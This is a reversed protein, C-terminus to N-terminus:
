KSLEFRCCPCRKKKNLWTTICLDHFVHSCPLCAEESGVALEELCISCDKGSGEVVTKGVKEALEEATLAAGVDEEEEMHDNGFRPLDCVFVEIDVPLRLVQSGKDRSAEALRVAADSIEEVVSPKLPVNMSNLMDIVHRNGDSVLDELPFQHIVRSYFRGSEMFAGGQAGANRDLEVSIFKARVEIEFVPAPLSEDLPVEMDTDWFHSYSDKERAM